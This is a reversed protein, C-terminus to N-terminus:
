EVRVMGSRVMERMQDEPMPPMDSHVAKMHEGGAAMFKELAEDDSEVEATLTHECAPCKFSYTM